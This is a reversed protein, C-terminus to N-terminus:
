VCLDLISYCLGRASTQYIVQAQGFSMTTQLQFTLGHSIHATAHRVAMLSFFVARLARPLIYRYIHIRRWTFLLTELWIQWIQFLYTDVTSTISKVCSNLRWVIEGNRFLLLLWLLLWFIIQNISVTHTIHSICCRAATAVTSRIHSLYVFPPPISTSVSHTTCVLCYNWMITHTCTEGLLCLECKNIHRVNPISENQITHRNTQAAQQTREM